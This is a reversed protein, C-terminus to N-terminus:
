VADPLAARADAASKGAASRAETILRQRYDMLKDMVKAPIRWIEGAHEIEYYWTHRAKLSGDPQVVNDTIRRVEVIYRERVPYDTQFEYGPQTRILDNLREPAYLTAALEDMEVTVLGEKRKTDM